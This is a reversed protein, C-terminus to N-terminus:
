RDTQARLVRHRLEDEDSPTKFAEQKWEKANAVWPEEVRACGGLAPLACLILLM